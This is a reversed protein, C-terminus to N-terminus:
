VEEQARQIEGLKIAKHVDIFTGCRPCFIDWDGHHRVGIGCGTCVYGVWKLRENEEKLPMEIVEM